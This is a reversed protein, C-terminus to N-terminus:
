IATHKERDMHAAKFEHLPDTFKTFLLLGTLMRLSGFSETVREAAAIIRVPPLLPFWFTLPRVSIRSTQFPVM